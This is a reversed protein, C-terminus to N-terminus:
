RLVALTKRMGIRASNFLKRGEYQGDLLRASLTFPYLVRPLKIHDPNIYQAPALSRRM